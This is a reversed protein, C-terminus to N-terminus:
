RHNSRHEPGDDAYKDLDIGLPAVILYNIPGNVTFVLGEEGATVQRTGITNQRGEYYLLKEDGLATWAEFPAKGYDADGMAIRVMYPGPPVQVKFPKKAAANFRMLLEHRASARDDRTTLDHNDLWGFGRAATYLQGTEALWGPRVPTDKVQFSIRRIVPADTVTIAVAAAKGGFTARVTAPKGSRITRVLGHAIVVAEPTDCSWRVEDGGIRTFHDAGRTYSGIAHLQFTDGAVMTLREADCHLADLTAAPKVPRVAVVVESSYGRKYAPDTYVARIRAAGLALGTVVGKGHLETKAVSPDLCSYDAEGTVDKRSGDAYVAQVSVAAAPISLEVSERVTKARVGTIPNPKDATLRYLYVNQKVGNCLIFLNRSPVYRFRGFTGWQQAPGPVVRNTAAPPHRTWRWTDANLTYVDPGNAWAVFEDISPVFCFGPSPADAVEKDGSAQVVRCTMVAPIEALRTVTLKGRGCAVLLRRHFDIDATEYYSPEPSSALRLTWRHSLPDWQSLKGATIPTNLWLLQGIPDYACYDGTRGTGHDAYIEWHRPHDPDLAYTRPTNWGGIVVYRDVPPPLYEVGDYTHMAFPSKNFDTYETGPIVPDPDTLRHWKLDHLDFAYVENGNYGGHGGGPGIYLRDRQSDLAGGAWCDIVGSINGRLWPYQKESPAVADLRSNPVEYWEGPKLQDLPDAGEAWSVTSSLSICGMCCCFFFRRSRVMSSRRM